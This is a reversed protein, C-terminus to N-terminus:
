KIPNAGHESLISQIFKAQDTNYFIKWTSPNHSSHINSQLVAMNHDDVYARTFIKGAEHNVYCLTNSNFRYGNESFLREKEPEIISM